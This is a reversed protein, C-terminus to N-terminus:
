EVVAELYPGSVNYQVKTESSMGWMLLSANYEGAGVGTALTASGRNVGRSPQLRKVVPKELSGGKVEVEFWPPMDSDFAKDGYWIVWSVRLAGDSTDFSYEWYDPRDNPKPQGDFNISRNYTQPVEWASLMNKGRRLALAGGTRVLKKLVPIARDRKGLSDLKQQARASELYDGSALIELLADVDDGVEEATATDDGGEEDDFRPEPPAEEDDVELGPQEREDVMEDVVQSEQPQAPQSKSCAKVVTAIGVGAFVLVIAVTM